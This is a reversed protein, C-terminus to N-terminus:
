IKEHSRFVRRGDMEELRSLLNHVTKRQGKGEMYGTLIMKELGQRRM